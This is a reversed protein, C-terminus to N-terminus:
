VLMEDRLETGQVSGFIFAGAGTPVESKKKFSSNLVCGGEHM